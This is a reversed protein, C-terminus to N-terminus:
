VRACCVCMCLCVCLCVYMCVVCVCACVRACFSAYACVTMCVCMSHVCMYAIILNAYVSERYTSAYMCHMGLYKVPFCWM